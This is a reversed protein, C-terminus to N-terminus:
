AWFVARGGWWCEDQAEM